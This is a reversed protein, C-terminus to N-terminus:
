LISVRAVENAAMLAMTVTRLTEDTVVVDRGAGVHRDLWDSNIFNATVGTGTLSQRLDITFQNVAAQSARYGAGAAHNHTMGALHGTLNIIQSTPANKLLPLMAQTVDVLGFFNAEFDQRMVFSSLTTPKFDHDYSSGGNNILTNLYGYNTDIYDKAGNISARCTLDLQVVDAHIGQKLLEAAMREGRQSDHVGLLLLQGARGLQTAIEYGMSQNANTILTITKNIM